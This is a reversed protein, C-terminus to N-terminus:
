IVPLLACSRFIAMVVGTSISELLPSLIIPKMM